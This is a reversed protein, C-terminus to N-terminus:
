NQIQVDAYLEGVVLKLMFGPARMTKSFDIEIASKKYTPEIRIITM